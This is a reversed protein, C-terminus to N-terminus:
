WGKRARLATIHAVHHRGHWAYMSVLQDVSLARRLEPHYVTRAFRAAPLARLLDTWRRHLATLLELSCEVPTVGNDPLEAWAAQDYPKITPAQETLALKCRIYANLHSDVLHHVVQVVRWGGERYPAALQGPSLGAVAARLEAPLTTLEDLCAARREPTLDDEPTYCGVPYRPDSKPM